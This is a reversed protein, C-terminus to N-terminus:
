RPAPSSAPGPLPASSPVASAPPLDSSIVRFCRKAWEETPRCDALARAARDARGADRYIEARQIASDCGPHPKHADIWAMAAQPDMFGFWGAARGVQATREEEAAFRQQLAALRAARSADLAGRHLRSLGVLSAAEMVEDLGGMAAAGEALEAEIEREAEANRDLRMLVAARLLHAGQMHPASQNRDREQRALQSMLEASFVDAEQLHKRQIAISVLYFRLWGLWGRDYRAARDIGTQLTEILAGFDCAQDYLKALTFLALASQPEAQAAAACASTAASLERDSPQDRMQRRATLCQALLAQPDRSSLRVAEDADARARRLDAATDAGPRDAARLQLMAREALAPVYKKDGALAEDLLLRGQELFEFRPGPGMLDYYALLKETSAGSRSVEHARLRRTRDRWLRMFEDTVRGGFEPVVQELEPSSATSEILEGLRRGDRTEFRSVVRIREGAQSVLTQLVWEGGQDVHVVEAMSGFGRELALGVSAAVAAHAPGAQVPAIRLTLPARPPPPRSRLFVAVAVAVAAAGALLWPRRRARARRRLLAGHADELEPLLEQASPFRRAPDKELCHEVIQRVEAPVSHPLPAPSNELIALSTANPTPGHFARHGSVLEYLVAGFSFIDARRDVPAGRVQEPAMYGVTGVMRGEATAGDPERTASAEASLTEVPLLPKAIGFDILKVRGDRTIFVNEPKLDRHVIKLAHAAALGAGIQTAIELAETLPLPSASKERLTIGELLECVLYPEGEHDKPGADYVTLVNPHSLQALTLAERRFRARATDDSSASSILKIAVKRRLETDLAEFVRGMGGHALERILRYRTDIVHRVLADAAAAQTLPEM